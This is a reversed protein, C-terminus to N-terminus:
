KPSPLFISGAEKDEEADEYFLGRAVKNAQRRRRGSATCVSLGATSTTCTTTSVVTTTYTSTSLTLTLTWFIRGDSLPQPADLSSHPLGARFYSSAYPNGYGYQPEAEALVAAAVALLLLSAFITRM